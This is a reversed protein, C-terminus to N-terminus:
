PAVSEDRFLPPDAIGNRWAEGTGPRTLSVTNHFRCLVRWRQAAESRFFSASAPTGLHTKCWNRAARRHM